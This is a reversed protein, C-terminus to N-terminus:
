KSGIISELPLKLTKRALDQELGRYAFFTPDSHIDWILPSTSDPNKTRSSRTLLYPM